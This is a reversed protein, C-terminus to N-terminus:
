TMAENGSISANLGINEYLDPLEQIDAKITELGATPYIGKKEVMFSSMARNLKSKDKFSYSGHPTDSSKVVEGTCYADKYFAIFTRNPLKKWKSLTARDSWLKEVTYCRNATDITFKANSGESYLWVEMAMASSGFVLVFAITAIFKM